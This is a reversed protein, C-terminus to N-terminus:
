RKAGHATKAGDGTFKATLNPADGWLRELSYFRRCDDTFIHVVFDGYDMLIWRGPNTGEVLRPSVGDNTRIREDIADAIANTQRETSGSCIVFFDAIPTLHGVELVDLANAKKDLAADVAHQVRREIPDNM